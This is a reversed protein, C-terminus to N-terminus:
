NKDYWDKFQNSKIDIVIDFENKDVEVDNRVVKITHINLGSGLQKTERDPDDILIESNNDMKFILNKLIDALISKGVGSKGKILIKM